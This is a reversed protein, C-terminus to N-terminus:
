SKVNVLLERLLIGKMNNCTKSSVRSMCSYNNPLIGIMLGNDVRQIAQLINIQITWYNLWKSEPYAM